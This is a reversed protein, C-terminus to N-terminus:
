WNHKINISLGMLMKKLMFSGHAGLILSTIITVNLSGMKLIHIPCIIHHPIGLSKLYHTFPRFEGEWCNSGRQNKSKFGIRCHNFNNSYTCPTPNIKSFISGPIAVILMYIFSVYYSYGLSSTVHSPGWLDYLMLQLPHTYLTSSPSSPFQHSKGMCCAVCFDVSMKNISSVNGLKVDHNLVNLSPHVLGNQWKSYLSFKPNTIALSM